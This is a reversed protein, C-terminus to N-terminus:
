RGGKQNAEIARKVRTPLGPRSAWEELIRAGWAASILFPVIAPQLADNPRDRIFESVRAALEADGEAMAFLAWAIKPVGWEKELGAREFLRDAIIAREDPSLRSLIGTFEDKRPRITLALLSELTEMGADSLQIRESLIPLTERGVHLAGRLDIKGLPPDLRLWDQVFTSDSSWPELAKPLAGEGDRAMEEGEALPLPVGDPAENVLRILLNFAASSACREFLLIKALVAPDVEIGQATALSKRIALTNMFRKILRPNGAIRKATAMQKALRDAIRFEAMLTPPCQSILGSVFEDSVIRGKWSESLRVNVERRIREKDQDPLPTYGEVFLLMLYARVENVGLPPVRLPVQILKDFYNVVLDDDLRAGQFHLRVSEKIMRDDAAIVFATRKMFLFLRMAELTGIVTPPLCRDLDDVFVVLTIDLEELIKEFSDRLAHIVQPPTEGKAPNVLHKAESSIEKIRNEADNAEDGTLKGDAFYKLIAAGSAVLGGVPGGVLLSAGVEAGVRGLRLWNIRATFSAVKELVGKNDKARDALVRSIEEMLAAKADDQGQYLWPNFTLAVVKGEGWTKTEDEILKIMSSKGVGWGGSIGISLPEGKADAIMQSALRALVRFNLCDNSTEVDAWM